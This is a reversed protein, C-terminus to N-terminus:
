QEETVGVDQSNSALLDTKERQGLGHDNSPLSESRVPGSYALNRNRGIQGTANMIGAEYLPESAQWLIPPSGASDGSVLSMGKSSGVTFANSKADGKSGVQSEILTEHNVQNQPIMMPGTSQTLSFQRKNTQDPLQAELHNSASSNSQPLSQGPPVPLIQVQNGSDSHSRQQQQQQFQKLHPVESSSSQQPRPRNLPHSAPSNSRQAPHMSTSSPLGQSRMMEKEGAYSGPAVSIGNIPFSENQLNQHAMTNGRGGGKPVKAHAQAASSPRQQPHQRGSQQLQQQQLQMQRQKGVQNTLGGVGGPANRVNGPNQVPIKQAHTPTVPNIPSSPKLLASSVSQAPSQSPHLASNQLASSLQPQPHSMLSSTSALQQQHHQIYRQQLQREKVLRIAYAQSQPGTLHNTGQLQPNQHRNHAPLQHSPAQHQNQSLASFNSVPSTGQSSFASGMGNVQPIGHSNGQAIPMQLEPTMKQRQPELNNGPRASHSTDRPRMLPTGPGSNSGIHLNGGNSMGMPCSSLMSSPNMVPSGAVGQFAPRSMPLSRNTATPVGTNKGNPFARIGHNNGSIAGSVPLNSQLISRNPLSHGFQLGRHLDDSLSASPRQLTQVNYRGDRASANLPGSPLVLNSSHVPGCPGPLSSYAGSTSLGSVVSGQNTALNSGQSGQYGLPLADANTGAEECLDLPTLVVGNLNNPCVQSLAVFHSTHVSMQKVDQRENQMRMYRQKQGIQIIKNFHERIADEEVPGQLHQFLQRASGKPIGPLTSPYPQSSGSDETSDHGDNATKDMLVKHREKCEGSKRYICKFQLISNIADSVLEWNPGMDHVLVVLAQDEFQSWSNGSGLQVSQVKLTNAKRGGDRGSFIKLIKKPNSISQSATSSPISGTTVNDISNDASNKILKPKKVLPQENLGNSEFLHNESRRKSQDQEALMPSDLQWGQEFQSSPYKPKKKKSKSSTEAMDHSLRSGYNSVSDFEGNKKIRLPGPITSLDDQFSSTDGSSADTKTPAQFSGVSAPTGSPLIFRSRPVSRFGKTPIHGVLNPPRKGMPQQTGISCRGYPSDTELEYPRPAKRKKQSHKLSKSGEFAGPLYYTGTEGEGEHYVNEQYGCDSVDSMHTDAQINGKGENQLICSEISKRYTEMAGSPITYFLSEETFHDELSVQLSDLVATVDPFVPSDNHFSPVRSYPQRLFRVAYLQLPPPERQNRLSMENSSQKVMDPDEAGARVETDVIRESDVPGVCVLKGDSNGNDIAVDLNEMSRWFQMVDKALTFAVKKLNTLGSKKELRLLSASAARRSLQSAATSKWLREQAFDNALWSMEELVFRWHSQHNEEFAVTGISLESIRKRKAEIIKAEELVSDESAALRSPNDASSVEQGTVEVGTLPISKSIESTQAETPKNLKIESCIEQNINTKDALFRAEEIEPEVPTQEINSLTSCGQSEDEGRDTVVSVVCNHRSLTAEREGDAGGGIKERDNHEDATEGITVNEAIVLDTKEVALNQNDVAMPDVQVKETSCACSSESDVAKSNAAASNNLAENIASKDKGIIENISNLQGSMEPDAKLSSASPLNCAEGPLEGEAGRSLDTVKNPEDSFTRKGDTLCIAPPEVRTVTDLVVEPFENKKISISSQLALGDEDAGLFVEPISKSLLENNNNPLGAQSVSCPNSEKLDSSDVTSVGSDKIGTHAPLSSGHSGRYNLPDASGPRGSDRNLRSWNRRSYPRFIASDESEKASHNNDTKVSQDPRVITNKRDLRVPKKDGEPTDTGGDYNLRSDICNHECTIPVGPRGSSEISDGHTSATLTKAEGSVFQEKHRDVLSTSQVSVSAADGFKFDLPNGGKELFELERRRKDRVDYEHRLEEQAKEIAAQCPSTKIGIGAGGDVIGGMSDAEANLKDGNRVQILRLSLLGCNLVRNWKVLM